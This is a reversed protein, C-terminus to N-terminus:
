KGLKGELEEIRRRLEAIQEEITMSEPTNPESM